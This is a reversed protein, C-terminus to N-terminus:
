KNRQRELWQKKLFSVSLTSLLFGGVPVLGNVLPNDNHISVLFLVVVFYTLIAITSKRINSTEWAKDGEVRKNRAEIREIRTTLEALSKEM